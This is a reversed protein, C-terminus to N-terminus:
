NIISRTQMSQFENKDFVKLPKKICRLVLKNKRWM